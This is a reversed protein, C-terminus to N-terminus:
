CNLALKSVVGATCTYEGNSNSEEATGLLRTEL